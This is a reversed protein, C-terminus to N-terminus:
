NATTSQEINNENMEVNFIMSMVSISGKGMVGVGFIPETITVNKFVGYEVDNLFFRIISGERKIYAINLYVNNSYKVLGSKVTSIVGGTNTVYRFQSGDLIIAKFNRDDHYDFLLVLNKPALLKLSKPKSSTAAVGFVFDDSEVVVPLEVTSAFITNNLKNNILLGDNTMLAQQRKSKSQTWQYHNDDIPCFFKNIGDPVTDETNSLTEITAIAKATQNKENNEKIAQLLGRKMFTGFSIKADVAMITVAFAVFLLALRKM